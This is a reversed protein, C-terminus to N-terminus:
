AGFPPALLVLALGAVLLVLTLAILGRARGPADAFEKWVLVGWLGSLLTAALGVFVGTAPGLLPVPEAGASATATASSAVFLSVTGATLTMGGLLALLHSKKPQKFYELLEIPLGQVPLNMFFLNYVFTSAFVGAAFMFAAAYPGLGMEPARSLDVLPSCLAVLPGGIAALVIGKWSATVKTSKTRGSKIAERARKLAAARSAAVDLLVAALVLVVTALLVAANVHPRLAYDLLLGVAVALGLGVPFALSMGALSMAAVLLITGLNFVAGAAMGYFWSHKSSRMLDDFFAFGGVDGGFDFGLSGFTLAAVTAAVLVGLAFDWYFLEFRQKGALKYANAWSGCCVSALVALLLAVIYTNPLIM